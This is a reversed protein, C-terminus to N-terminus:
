GVIYVLKNQNGLGKLSLWTGVLTVSGVTWSSARRVFVVGGRVILLAQSTALRIGSPTLLGESTSHDHVIFIFSSMYANIREKERGKYRVGNNFDEWVWEIKIM